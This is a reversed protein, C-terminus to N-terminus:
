TVSSNIENLNSQKIHLQLLIDKLILPINQRVNVNYLENSFLNQYYKVGGILNEIFTHIYSKTKEDPNLYFDSIKESVYEFYLHLEKIFMHPRDMRNILNIRGYIHKLMEQLSYIRDFYAINPGPCVSSGNGELTQDLKNEELFPVSLGCCLCEKEYLKEKELKLREETLNKTSLDKLALKIYQRSATCIPKESFETNLQLFKKTCPSGVKGNEQKWQQLLQKSSNKLNNFRVGLPSSYSLFLDNETARALKHLTDNDISVAEPVLLFPSGWGVSDLGFYELLFTHEHHTGVGGQATIKLYPQYDMLEPYDNVVNTKWISYIEEYLEQRKSKFEELIPGMLNGQTPFAHGGCNLGSEIRFESVWIGKKALIKGQILASRYDSVKLIIKKKFTGNELQFFDSFVKIYNYLSSNMGASFVVASSLNSSAFGRLAAHADNYEINLMQGKHYNTKDLKTMINVDISGAKFNNKVWANFADKTLINENIQWESSWNEPEPLTEFFENRYKKDHILKEIHLEWNMDVIQKMLNLYSTTIKARYDIDASDIKETSINYKKAYFNRAKETLFHDGISVVSSIGLHAIKLPTDITFALGMVPIHFSHIM